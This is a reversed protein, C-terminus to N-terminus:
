AVPTPATLGAKDIAFGSAVMGGGAEVWSRLAPAFVEFHNRLHSADGNDGIVVVDFANLEGATDVASQDVLVADFQYATSDNLQDRIASFGTDDGGGTGVVAVNITLLTRDELCETSTALDRAIVRRESAVEVSHLRVLEGSQAGGRRCAEARRGSKRQSWLGRLWSTLIM